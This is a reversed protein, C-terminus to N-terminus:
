NKESNIKDNTMCCCNIMKYRESDSLKIPFLNEENWRRIAKSILLREDSRNGCNKCELCYRPFLKGSYIRVLRICNDYHCICCPKLKNKKM